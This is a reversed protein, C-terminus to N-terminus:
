CLWAEAIAMSSKAAYLLTNLVRMRAHVPLCTNVASGVRGHTSNRKAACWSMGFECSAQTAAAVHAPVDHIDIYM